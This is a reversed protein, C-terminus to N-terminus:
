EFKRSEFTGFEYEEMGISFETTEIYIDFLKRQTKQRTRLKGRKIRKSMYKDYIHCAPFIMLYFIIVRFVNLPYNNM